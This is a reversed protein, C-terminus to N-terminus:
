SSKQITCNANLSALRNRRSIPVSVNITTGRSIESNIDIKGGIIRVRERTSVLGLGKQSVQNVDFGKGFDEIALHLINRTQSLRVRAVRAGSHKAINSLSEQTVRFLATAVENPLHGPIDNGTFEVAIQKQVSFEKSLRRLAPALGLHALISPHLNHSIRHTDSAIRDICERVEKLKGRVPDPPKAILRTIEDLMVALLALRQGIDDHLERAIRKREAEQGLLLSGQIGKSEREQNKHTEIDIRTGMHGAYSGDTRFYPVGHDSLWEYKGNARKVRYEEAYPQKSRSADLLDQEARTRDDPHLANIWRFGLDKRPNRGTFEKWYRSLYTCRTKEDTIWIVIPACEALTRFNAESERLASKALKHNPVKPAYAVATQYKRLMALESLDKTIQLFV